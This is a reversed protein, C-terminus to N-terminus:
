ESFPNERAQNFITQVNVNQSELGEITKAVEKDVKPHSVAQYQKTVAAEDPEKNSLTTAQFIVYAYLLGFAAIGLFLAHRQLLALTQNAYSTITDKDINM